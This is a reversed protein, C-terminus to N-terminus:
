PRSLMTTWPCLRSPAQTPVPPCCLVCCSKLHTESWTVTAMCRPSHHPSRPPVTAQLHESGMCVGGGSFHENLYKAWKYIVNTEHCAKLLERSVRSILGEDSVHNAFVTDWEAPARETGHLTGETALINVKWMTGNTGNQEQPSRQPM